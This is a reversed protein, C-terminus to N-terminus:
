KLQITITKDGNFDFVCKNWNPMRAGNSFGYKETPIGFINTDLKGNDNADQYVSVAYQGMPLNSFVVVMVQDTVAIRLVRFGTNPFDAENNNVAIMLYGRGIV